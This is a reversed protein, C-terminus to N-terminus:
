LIWNVSIVVYLVERDGRASSASCPWIQSADAAINRIVTGLDQLKLAMGSDANEAITNSTVVSSRCLAQLKEVTM